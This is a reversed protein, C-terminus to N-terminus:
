SMRGPGRTRAARGRFIRRGRREMTGNRLTDLIKHEAGAPLKRGNKDTLEFLDVARHGVTTIRAAHVSAGSVAFASTLAHLLRPRDEAEAFCLTHWPSGENDLRLTVDDVAPTELPQALRARLADSLAESSPPAARRVRYSALATGDEWTSVVADLVDCGADALVATERALLGVRDHAVFEVRWLDPDPLADVVVRLDDHDPPPECLAAQRAVDEASQTLVYARPASAVRARVADGTVTRAAAARRQEVLNAASRSTLEPRALAELVLDRVTALRDRDAGVPEDSSLTLLFLADVQEAVELHVALQLVAEETLADPRRAAASLLGADAVLAAVSQEAAAGLDLRQCVRRAVVVPNAGSDESADLVLAALLLRDPHALADVDDIDRLNELRPWRHDPEVDFPEAPRRALADAVEPLARSLVGSRSLFRWSRPRGRRLVDVLRDTSTRDWRLPTPPLGTVWELLGTGPPHDATLLAASLLVPLTDGPAPAGALEVTSQESIALWGAARSRGSVPHTAPMARLRLWRWRLLPPTVITSLLVVLLLSAYIDAGFVGARLGLAAFILDVEGRPIMGLGILLRDGPARWLGVCSCLKGIASILFLAGAIALVRLNVFRRLEADIGIQLFFVPVFLHAVPALERRIRGAAPSRALSLGAVFAGVIPALRAASALKAVALTFALTMAVLTGSSRSRRALFAFVGPALRVGVVSAVVLFGVAVGTIGAVSVFSVSGESVVRVMVTLIVLGMVDDAVAAGLVTRAEVSNLARLDGFVRATIGVSTATLAAGLFIAKTAPMELALGVGTGGVLPMVVGATAVALSARGVAGLDALDTEIGVQLLLLIVGLEGLTRLVEDGKVWGLASPGIVVGAAIEAVVPTVNFREALEAAAKAFLLM